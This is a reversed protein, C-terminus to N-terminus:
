NTSGITDYYRVREEERHFKMMWPQYILQHSVLSPALLHFFLLTERKGLFWTLVLQLDVVFEQIAYPFGIGQIAIEVSSPLFPSM